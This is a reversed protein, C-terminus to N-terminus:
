VLWSNFWSNTWQSRQHLEPGEGGTKIIIISLTKQRWKTDYIEMATEFQVGRKAVWEDSNFEGCVKEWANNKLQIRNLKTATEETKLLMTDTLSIWLPLSRLLFLIITEDKWMWRSQESINGFHLRSLRFSQGIYKSFIIAELLWNTLKDSTM